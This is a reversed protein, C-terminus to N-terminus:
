RMAAAGVVMLSVKATTWFHPGRFAVFLHATRIQARDGACEKFIEPEDIHRRVWFM